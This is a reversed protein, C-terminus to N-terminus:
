GVVYLLKLVISHSRIDLAPTRSHLIYLTYLIASRFLVRQPRETRLRPVPTHESPQVNEYDSRSGGLETEFGIEPATGARPSGNRPGYVGRWRKRRAMPGPAYYRSPLGRDRETLHLPEVDLHERRQSAATM